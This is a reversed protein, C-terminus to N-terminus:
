EKDVKTIILVNNEMRIDVTDNEQMGAKELIEDPIELVMDGSGDHTPQLKLIYKDTM